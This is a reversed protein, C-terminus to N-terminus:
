LGGVAEYLCGVQFLPPEVALGLLEDENSAERHRPRALPVYLAVYPRM